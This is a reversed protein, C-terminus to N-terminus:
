LKLGVAPGCTPGYGFDRYPNKTSPATLVDGCKACNDSKTVTIQEGQPGTFVGEQHTPDYDAGLIITLAMALEPNSWRRWPKFVGTSQVNGFNRFDRKNNPGNQYGVLALGPMFDDDSPQRRIRIVKYDDNGYEVTYTGHPFDDPVIIEGSAPADAAPTRTALPLKRIKKLENFTRRFETQGVKTWDIADWLATATHAPYREFIMDRIMARRGESAWIKKPEEAVPTETSFAFEEQAPATMRSRLSEISPRDNM